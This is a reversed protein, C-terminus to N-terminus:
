DVELHELMDALEDFNSWGPREEKGGLLHIGAVNPTNLVADVTNPTTSAGILISLQSPISALNELSNIVIHQIKILKSEEFDLLDNVQNVELIKIYTDPLDLLVDLQQSQIGDVSVEEISTLIDNSSSNEFEAIFKIGELWNSIETYSTADIPSTTQQDFNFGIYDVGMGACYRADSLNDIAGVKVITKLAM